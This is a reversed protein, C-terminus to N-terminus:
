RGRKSTPAAKKAPAKKASAKAPAKKAPAKAPAASKQAPAAKAPAAKKAPAASKQAPAAKAPAAKKAPAAAQWVGLTGGQPDVFVALWGMGSIAMKPVIITAGAAKAKAVTKDVDDVSVYATWATPQEPMQKPGMGGGVGEGVDIGTWNMAPEDLFKWKFVAGYFAKAAAVDGTALDLHVFPNGM